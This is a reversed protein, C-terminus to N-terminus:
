IRPYINGTPNAREVTSSRCGFGGAPSSGVVEGSVTTVWVAGVRSYTLHALSQPVPFYGRGRLGLGSRSEPECNVMGSRGMLKLSCPHTFTGRPYRLLIVTASRGMSM